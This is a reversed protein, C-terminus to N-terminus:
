AEESIAARNEKRGRTEYHVLPNLGVTAVDPNRALYGATSFCPGPDCGERWGLVLYHLAADAGAARM